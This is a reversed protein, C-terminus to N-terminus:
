CPKQRGLPNSGSSRMTNRVKPVAALAIWKGRRRVDTVALGHHRLARNVANEQARMIGSLILWGNGALPPVLKPLVEILLESFLNASIVDVRGGPRWKRIDAIEFRIGRVKNLKATERATSIALTDNDIGIVRGAGFVKAALALIGSGTGLDVLTWGTNLPRTIQELLRLSMATTVHEGTGFAVGAPIILQPVSGSGKTREATILLRNGISIPRRRQARSFGVLWDKALKEVSGGFTKILERADNQGPCVIELAIRSRGPCEILALRSGGRLRVAAENHRLWQASALKRWLFMHRSYCM